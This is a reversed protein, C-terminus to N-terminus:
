ENIKNPVLVSVILFADSLSFGSEVSLVSQSLMVSASTGSFINSNLSLSFNKSSGHQQAIFQGIEAWFDSSPITAGPPSTWGRKRWRWWRGWRTWSWRRGSARWSRGWCKRLPLSRMTKANAADTKKKMKNAESNQKKALNMRRLFNRARRRFPKWGALSGPM